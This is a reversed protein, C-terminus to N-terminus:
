IKIDFHMLTSKLGVKTFIVFQNVNQKQLIKCQRVKKFCTPIIAIIRLNYETYKDCEQQDFFSYKHKYYKYESVISDSHSMNMYDMLLDDYYINNCLTAFLINKMSTAFYFEFKYSRRDNLFLINCQFTHQLVCNLITLKQYGTTARSFINKFM